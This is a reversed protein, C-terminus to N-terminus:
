PLESLSNYSLNLYQLERLNGVEDPLRKLRNLNLYLHRLNTLNGIEKGIKSINQGHLDLDTVEPNKLAKKLEKEKVEAGSMMSFSQQFNPKDLMLSLEHHDSYSARYLQLYHGNHKYNSEVAVRDNPFTYWRWDVQQLNKGNKISYLEGKNCIYQGNLIASDDFWEPQSGISEDDIETSRIHTILKGDAVKYISQLRNYYRGDKYEYNGRYPSNMYAYRNRDNLAKTSDSNFKWGQIALLNGDRSFSFSFVPNIFYNAGGGSTDFNCLITYLKSGSLLAHVDVNSPNSPNLVALAKSTISIAYYNNSRFYKGSTEKFNAVRISNFFKNEAFSYFHISLQTSFVMISGDESFFIPKPNDEIVNGWDLTAYTKWNDTSFVVLSWGRDVGGGYDTRKLFAFLYRGDPTFFFYSRTYILVKGDLKTAKLNIEKKMKGNVFDWIGIRFDEYDNTVVHYALFKRDPDIAINEQHSNEVPPSQYEASNTIDFINIKETGHAIFRSDASFVYKWSLDVIKEGNNINILKYDNSKNVVVYKGDPSYGNIEWGDKLKFLPELKMYEQTFGIKSACTLFLLCIVSIKM